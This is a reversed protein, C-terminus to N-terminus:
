GEAKKPCNVHWCFSSDLCLVGTFSLSNELLWSCRGRLATSRLVWLLQQKSNITVERLVSSSFLAATGTVWRQGCVEEYDLLMEWSQTATSFNAQATTGALSATGKQAVAKLRWNWPIDLYVAINDKKEARQWCRSKRYTCWIVASNICLLFVIQLNKCNKKVWQEM